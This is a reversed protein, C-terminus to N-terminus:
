WEGINEGSWGGEKKPMEMWAERELLNACPYGSLAQDGLRTKMNKCLKHSSINTLLILLM